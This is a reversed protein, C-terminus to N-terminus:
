INNKKFVSNHPKGFTTVLSIDGDKKWKGNEKKWKQECMCTYVIKRSLAKPPSLEYNRCLACAM